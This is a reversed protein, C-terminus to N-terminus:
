GEDDSFVTEDAGVGRGEFPQELLKALAKCAEYTDRRIKGQRAAIKRVPELYFETQEVASRIVPSPFGEFAGLPVRCVGRPKPIAKRRRRQRDSGWPTEKYWSVELTTGQVLRARVWLPLFNRSRYRDADQYYHMEIVQQAYDRLREALLRHLEYIQDYIDQISPKREFNPYHM